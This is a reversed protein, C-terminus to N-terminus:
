PIPPVNGYIPIHVQNQSFQNVGNGAGGGNADGGSGGVSGASASGGSGAAGGHGGAAACIAGGSCGANDNGTQSAVPGGKLVAEAPCTLAQAPNPVGFAVVGLALIGAVAAAMAVKTNKYM